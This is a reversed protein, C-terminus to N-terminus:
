PTVVANFRFEVRGGTEDEVVVVRGIPGIGAPGHAAPDFVVDVSTETNPELIRDISPMFGHGPMGYPGFIEDGIHISAETCMCSTYMKSIVVPESTSNKLIYSHRVLGGNIPVPGFDYSDTEASLVSPILESHTESSPGVLAVFAILGLIGVIIGMFTSKNM